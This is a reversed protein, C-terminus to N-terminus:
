GQAGLRRQQDIAEQRIFDTDGTINNNIWRHVTNKLTALMHDFGDATAAFSLAKGIKIGMENAVKYADQNAGIFLVDWNLSDEVTTIWMKADERGGACNNYGDTVVITIVRSSANLVSSLEQLSGCISAFLATQGGLLLKTFLPACIRIGPYNHSFGVVLINADFEHNNRARVINNLATNVNFLHPSMSGSCDVVFLLTPLTPDIQNKDTQLTKM